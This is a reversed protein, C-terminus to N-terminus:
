SDIATCYPVELANMAGCRVVGLVLIATEALVEPTSRIALRYRERTAEDADLARWIDDQKAFDRAASALKLYTSGNM